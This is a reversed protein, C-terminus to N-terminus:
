PQVEAKWGGACYGARAQLFHRHGYLIVGCAAVAVVGLKTVVAEAGPVNHIPTHVTTLHSM